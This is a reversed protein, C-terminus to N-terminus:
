RRLITATEIHYIGHLRLPQNALLHSRSERSTGIICPHPNGILNKPRQAILVMSSHLIELIEQAFAIRVDDRQITSM